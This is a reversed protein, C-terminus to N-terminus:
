GRNTFLAILKLKFAILLKKSKPLYVRRSLVPYDQKEIENLIGEYVDSSLRIVYQFDKPLLPIGKKGEEYYWRAREIQFQLFTIFDDSPTGRRIEQPLNINFAELEELPLYVRGMEFDEKIDRLINSLQMAIGLKEAYDLTTQDPNDMFLHTMMLGVTSAVHYSYNRLGAFNMISSKNLDFRVGDILELFHLKPINHTYLIFNLAAYIPDTTIYNAGMALIEQEVENLEQERIHIEQKHEDAIDDIRRCVAYLTAVKKQDLESLFSSAFSFSKSHNEIVGLALSYGTEILDDEYALPIDFIQKSTIEENSYM